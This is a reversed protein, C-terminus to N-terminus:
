RDIICIMLYIYLYIIFFFYLINNIKLFLIGIIRNYKIGHMAISNTFGEVVGDSEMSTSSKTWNLFCEHKPTVEM